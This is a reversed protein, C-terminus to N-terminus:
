PLLQKIKEQFPLSKKQDLARNFYCRLSEPNLNWLTGFVRWVDNMKIKESIFRALLAAETNSLNCPQWDDDIMGADMLNSKLKEAYEGQLQKPIAILRKNSYPINTITDGESSDLLRTFRVLNDVSDYVLSRQIFMTFANAISFDPIEGIVKRVKEISLIITKSKNGDKSISEFHKKSQILLEKLLNNEEELECIRQSNILGALAGMSETEM